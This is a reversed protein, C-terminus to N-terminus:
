AATKKRLREMVETYRDPFLNQELLKQAHTHLFTDKNGSITYNFTEGTHYELAECVVEFVDGAMTLECYRNLDTEHYPVGSYSIANKLLKEVLYTFRGKGKTYQTIYAEIAARIFTYEPSTVHLVLTQPLTLSGGVVCGPM